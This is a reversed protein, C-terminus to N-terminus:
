GFRILAAGALSLPIADAAWQAASLCMKPVRVGDSIQAPTAATPSEVTSYSSVDTLARTHRVSM